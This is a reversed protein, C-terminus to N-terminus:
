IGGMGSIGGMVNSFAQSAQNTGAHGTYRINMHRQLAGTNDQIGPIGPLGAYTSSAGGLVNALLAARAQDSSFQNDGGGALITALNSTGTNYIGATNQGQAEALAALSSGADTRGLATLEGTRLAHSAADRMLSTRANISAAGVGANAGVEAGSLGAHHGGAAIAANGGLAYLNNALGSASLGRDGVSGLRNYYNDFDQAALGIANAQLEQRVDGGGLGGLAASRRLLAKEAENVLYEQGPSAQFNSYAQAQADRGMAGSLAAQVQHAEMGPKVFPDVAAIGRNAQAIAMDRNADIGSRNGSMNAGTGIGNGLASLAAQLGGSLAQERGILGTPPSQPQPNYVPGTPRYSGTGPLMPTGVRYDM